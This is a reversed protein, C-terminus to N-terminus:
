EESNDDEEIYQGFEDYLCRRAVSLGHDDGDNVTMKALKDLASESNVFGDEVVGEDNVICWEDM